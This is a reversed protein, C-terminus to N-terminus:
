VDGDDDKEFLRKYAENLAEIAEDFARIRAAKEIATMAIEECTVAPIYQQGFVSRRFGVGAQLDELAREKLLNLAGHAQSRYKDLIQSM